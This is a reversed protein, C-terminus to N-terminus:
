KDLQQDFGKQILNEHFTYCDNWGINCGYLFVNKIFSVSEESPNGDLLIKNNITEQWREDFHQQISNLLNENDHKIKEVLERSSEADIDFTLNYDEM